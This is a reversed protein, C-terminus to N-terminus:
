GDSPAATKGTSPPSAGAPPLQVRSRSHLLRRWLGKRRGRKDRAPWYDRRAARYPSSLVSRRRQSRSSGHIGIGASAPPPRLLFLHLFEGPARYGDRGPRRCQVGDTVGVHRQAAARGAADRGPDRSCNALCTPLATGPLSAARWFWTSRLGPLRLRSGGTCAGPRPFPAWRCPLIGNSWGPAGHASRM